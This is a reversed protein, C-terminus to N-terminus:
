FKWLKPAGYNRTCVESQSSIQFLNYGKDLSGFTHWVGGARLSIPDIGSKKHEPTSNGIQNMARRKAMIRTEFTWIPWALWNLVHLNWYRELSIFFDIIWHTQGRYDSKSSEITWPVGIGLIHIAKPTHLNM